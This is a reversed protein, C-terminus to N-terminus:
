GLNCTSYAKAFSENQIAYIGGYKEVLYDGPSAFQLSGWPAMFQIGKDRIINFPIKVPKPVFIGNDKADYLQAMKESSLFYQDGAPSTVKWDGQKAVNVTTIKGNISTQLLEGPTALYASVPKSKVAYGCPQQLMKRLEVETLVRYKHADAHYGTLTSHNRQTANRPLQSSSTHYGRRAYFSPTHSLSALRSVLMTARKTQTLSFREVLDLSCSAVRQEARITVRLFDFLM